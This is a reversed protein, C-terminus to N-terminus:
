VLLGAELAAAMFTERASLSNIHRRLAAACTSTATAYRANRQAPWRNTLFLLAEAPDKITVPAWRGMQVTVPEGWEFENKVRKKM